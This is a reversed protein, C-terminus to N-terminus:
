QSSRLSSAIEEVFHVIDGFRAVEFRDDDPRAVRGRQDQQAARPAVEFQQGPPTGAMDLEHGPNVDEGAARDVALVVLRPPDLGAALMQRRAEHARGAGGQALGPLLNADQDTPGARSRRRAPQRRDLRGIGLM